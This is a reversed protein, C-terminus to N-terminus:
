AVEGAVIGLEQDRACERRAQHSKNDDQRDRLYCKVSCRHDAVDIPSGLRGLRWL